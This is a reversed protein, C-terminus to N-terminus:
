LNVDTSLKMESQKVSSPLKISKLLNCNKFAKDCIIKTGPKITYEKIQSNCRLLQKGDTSYIVGHKYKIGKVIDRDTVTTESKIVNNKQTKPRETKFLRFSILDLSKRGLAMYFASFLLTLESNNTLLAISQLLHSNAPDRFDTESLLLTDASASRRLSPNLALAKLSLAIVAVSFDDIHENFDADTRLPHRYDPSGAERAKEGQMSPVFMGDYDVLVPSGDERVLINDPKL